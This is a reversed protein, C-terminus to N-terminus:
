APAQRDVIDGLDGLQLADKYIPCGAIPRRYLRLRQCQSHQSIAELVAFGLRFRDADKARAHRRPSRRFCPVHQHRQRTAPPLDLPLATGDSERTRRNPQSRTQMERM